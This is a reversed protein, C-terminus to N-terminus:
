IAFYKKYLKAMRGHIFSLAEKAGEEGMAYAKMLRGEEYCLEDHLPTFEDLLFRAYKALRLDGVLRYEESITDIAISYKEKISQSNDTREYRHGFPEIGKEKLEEMKRRRVIEQETLQLEQSM